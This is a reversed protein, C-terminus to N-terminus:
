SIWTQPHLLSVFNKYWVGVSKSKSFFNYQYKLSDTLIHHTQNLVPGCELACGNGICCINILVWFLTQGRGVGDWVCSYIIDNYGQNYIHCLFLFPCHLSVLLGVSLQETLYSLHQNVLVVMLLCQHLNQLLTVALLELLFASLRVLDLHFLLLSTLAYLLRYM